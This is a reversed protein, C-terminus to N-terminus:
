YMASLEIMYPNRYKVTDGKKEKKLSRGSKIEIEKEKKKKELKIKM